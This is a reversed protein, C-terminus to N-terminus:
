LLLEGMIGVLLDCGGFGCHGMGCDRFFFSFKEQGQKWVMCVMRFTPSAGFLCPLPNATSKLALLCKIGEIGGNNLSVSQSVICAM